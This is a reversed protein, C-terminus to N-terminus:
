SKILKALVKKNIKVPFQKRLKAVWEKELQDQYDAIVYGRAETLEKQRAPLLDEVKYFTAVGKRLDNTVPTRSGAKAPLDGLDALRSLEYNDSKADLKARGFNDLTQDMTHSAAFNYVENVDLGSTKNIIYHTVAAREEWQYDAKNAVFFAELGLTDEGAKDWVEMKTAEFLLIGERYERMLAAFEPFDKELRSEAYTMLQADVWEQYLNNAVTSANSRRGMSVRKRSNKRLYEQFQDLGVKYGDAMELLPTSEAATTPKWKFGLFTSDVLTAAYRGFVAKNERVGAKTRIDVLMQKKADEFRGDAKVKTELLPRMDALPQVDRRSIRRILHFGVSSEVIDSVQGDETLAFAANEFAPEYVNIAVFGLYGANSKTKNDESVRAAVAAFDEGQDIMKKAAQLQAPVPMEGTKTGKPKRILIHGIEVEGRAPREETKIALHYGLATQVPGVVENVAAQYLAAELKHMGKPLPATIFGIKGGKTASYTDESYKKADEAFSAATMGKKLELAKNYLAATDAPTPNGKFKFLIHSFSVDKLKREHLEKVLQDTVGRDVLYNDALQRRYGELERQLVGVTDLGMAKARAVKLKFREYLELYERVSKEDYKAAEGNTKGYIYRFEGVTVPEGAVTFLVDSDKQAQLPCVVLFFAFSLFYTIFKM